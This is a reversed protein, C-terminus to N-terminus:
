SEKCKCREKNKGCLADFVAEKEKGGDQEKALCALTKGMEDNWDVDANADVLMRIINVPGKEVAKHLPTEGNRDDWDVYARARILMGVINAHGEEVARHLPTEGNRDDWDVYARARILMGVINAHGEEVARHLPTEGNRDDWDVYAKARILISVMNAHGEEVARHLPTKGEEDAWNVDAGAGVLTRVINVDRDEEVSFAKHLPTKGEKDAWNVDAGARVLMNVINADCGEESEATECQPTVDKSEQDADSDEAIRLINCVICLSIPGEESKQNAALDNETELVKHLPTKGSNDTRNVDAGARILMGTINACGKETAKHLSTEGNDDDDAWNPDAGYGIWKSVEQADCGKAARLLYEDKYFEFCLYMVLAFLIAASFFVTALLLRYEKICKAVKKSRDVLATGIDKFSRGRKSPTEDTDSTDNM